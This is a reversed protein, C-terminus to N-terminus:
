GAKKITETILDHIRTDLKQAVWALKGPYGALEKSVPAPKAVVTGVAWGTTNKVVVLDGPVLDPFVTLYGYVKSYAGHTLKVELVGPIQLEAREAGMSM